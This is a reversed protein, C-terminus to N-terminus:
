IPLAFGAANQIANGVIGIISNIINQAAVIGVGKIALLVNETALKQFQLRGEFEDKDITGNAHLQTLFVINEALQRFEHAAFPEVKDWKNGLEIKAASISDTVIQTFDIQAM